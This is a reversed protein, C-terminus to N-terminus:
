DSRAVASPNMTRDVWGDIGPVYVLYGFAYTHVHRTAAVIFVTEEGRGETELSTLEDGRRELLVRASREAKTLNLEQLQVQRAQRAADETDKGVREYASYLSVADLVVVAALVVALAVWIIERVFGGQRGPRM